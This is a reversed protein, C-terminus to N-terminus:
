NTLLTYMGTGIAILSFIYRMATEQILQHTVFFSGSTIGLLMGMGIMMAQVIPLYGKLWYQYAGFVGVPLTQMLLTIGVAQQISLGGLFMMGPIMIVGAGTGVVGILLGALTGILVFEIM